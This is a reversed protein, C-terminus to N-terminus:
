RFAQIGELYVSVLARFKRAMECQQSFEALWAPRDAPDAQIPYFEQVQRNVEELSHLWAPAVKRWRHNRTNDRAARRKLWLRINTLNHSLEGGPREWDVLNNTRFGAEHALRAMAEALPQCAELFDQQAKLFRLDM